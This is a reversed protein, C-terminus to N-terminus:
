ITCKEIGGEQANSQGRRTHGEGITRKEMGGKQGERGGGGKHTEGKNNIRKPQGGGKEHM